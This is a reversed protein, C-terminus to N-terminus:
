ALWLSKQILQLIRMTISEPVSTFKTILASVFTVMKKRAWVVPSANQIGEYSCPTIVGLEELRRLENRVELELHVPVTRPACFKNKTNPDLRVSAKFGRIAPLQESM